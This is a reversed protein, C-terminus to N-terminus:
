ARRAIVDRAVMEAVVGVTIARPRSTIERGSAGEGRRSTECAVRMSARRRDPYPRADPHSCRRGSSTPRDRESLMVELEEDPIAWGDCWGDFQAGEIAFHGVLDRKMRVSYTLRRGDPLTVTHRRFLYEWRPSPVSSTHRNRITSPHPRSVM